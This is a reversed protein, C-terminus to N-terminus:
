KKYFQKFDLSNIKNENKIIATIAIKIITYISEVGLSRSIYAVDGKETISYEQLVSDHLAFKYIDDAVMVNIVNDELNANIGIANLKSVIIMDSNKCSNCM